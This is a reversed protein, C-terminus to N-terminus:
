AVPVERLALGMAVSFQASFDQWPQAATLEEVMPCAALPDAIEVPVGVRIQLWPALGPLQATGGSVVVRDFQQIQSQTMQHSFSKFTHVLDVVLNELPSALARAVAQGADNPPAAAPEPESTDSRLGHARKLMEAQDQNVQLHDAVAQTLSQGTTLIARSFALQGRAVISFSASKEGLELLLTTETPPVRRQWLLGAAVAFPDMDVAVPQLGARRARETLAVVRQRPATAVLIHSEGHAAIDQLVVYDFTFEALSVQAPLSQEIQWRIAQELEQEPLSPIKLLRLNVDELPLSLVAPGSLGHRSVVQKLVEQLEATRQVEPLAALAHIPKVGLAVLCPRGGALGIQAWKLAGSGVDIGIPFRKGVARGTVGPHLPARSAISM